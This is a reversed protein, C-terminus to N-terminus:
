EEQDEEEGGRKSAVVAAKFAKTAKEMDVSSTDVGLAKCFARVAVQAGMAGFSPEEDDKSDKEEDDDGEAESPKQGLKLVAFGGPKM